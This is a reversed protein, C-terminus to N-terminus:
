RQGTIEMDFKVQNSYIPVGTQMDYPSRRITGTVRFKIRRGRREVLRINFSAPKDIGRAKLLGDIRATDSGTRTVRTTRFTVPPRRAADFIAKGRIFADIREEGTDVSAPDVTISVKSREINRRNIEFTGSFARFVGVIGGGGIQSVSFGIRSRAPEIVYRGAAQELLLDAQAPAGAPCALMFVVCLLVARRASM